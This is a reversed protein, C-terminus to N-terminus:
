FFPRYFRNQLIFLVSHHHLIPDIRQCASLKLIVFNRGMDALASQWPDFCKSYRNRGMKMSRPENTNEPVHSITKKKKLNM